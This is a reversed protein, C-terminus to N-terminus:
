SGRRVWVCGLPTLPPIYSCEGEGLQLELDLIPQKVVIVKPTTSM